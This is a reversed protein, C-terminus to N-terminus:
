GHQVSRQGVKSRRPWANETERYLNLWCTLQSYWRNKKLDHLACLVTMLADLMGEPVENGDQDLVADITMLHGVNRVLLM